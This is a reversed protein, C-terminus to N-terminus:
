RVTRVQKYCLEPSSGERSSKFLRKEIPSFAFRWLLHPNNCYEGDVRKYPKTGLLWFSNGQRIELLISRMEDFVRGPGQPLTADINWGRGKFAPMLDVDINGDINLTVAPRNEYPGKVPIQQAQPFLEGKAFAKILASHVLGFFWTYFLTPDLYGYPTIFEQYSAWKNSDAGPVLQCYAFAPPAGTQDVQTLNFLVMMWIAKELNSRYMCFIIALWHTWYINHLYSM